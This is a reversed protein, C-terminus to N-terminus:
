VLKIQVMQSGMVRQALELERAHCTFFFIQREKALQSLLRFGNLMREEDYQSFPEDLFLPLPEGRKELLRVVALRMALYVQDVTGTSLRDVPILEETEPTALLVQLADNTSARTYKGSTLLGLFRSMEENLAPIYDKQLQEATEKLIRGALELGAGVRELNQRKGELFALEEVIRTIEGEQPVQELRTTLAAIELKISNIRQELALLDDKLCDEEPLEGAQPETDIKCLADRCEEYTMGPRGLFGAAERVLAQRKDALHTVRDLLAKKEAKLQTLNDMGVRWREALAGREGERSHPWAETLSRWQEELSVCLAELEEQHGTAELLKKQHSELANAVKQQAEKYELYEALSIFGSTSLAKNLAQTHLAVATSGTKHSRPRVWLFVTLAIGVVASLALVPHRLAFWLIVSALSLLGTLYLLVPAKPKEPPNLLAETSATRLAAEIDQTKRLFTEESELSNELSEREGKLAELLAKNQQVDQRVRTMDHLLLTARTLGEPTVVGYAEANVLGQEVLELEREKGELDHSLAEMERKLSMLKLTQLRTAHALKEEREELWRALLKQKDHLERFTDLYRESVLILEQHKSELEKIRANVKDLPRATSRGTGVKELLAAELVQVARSLSQDESGTANLNSIKEVLTRRGAEDVACQMQGIFASREFTLEDLGLHEEAFRPSSDKDQAFMQNIPNAGSDYINTTGKQFNRGVRYAAGSSLTYELVGAYGEGNWPMFHKLPPLSGDKAKRGGKLGYLMSKIFAQLTSKGSENPAYIMNFGPGPTDKYQKFKGFGKIDWVTIKM